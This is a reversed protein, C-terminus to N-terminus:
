KEGLPFFGKNKVDVGKVKEQPFFFIELILATAGFDLIHNPNLFIYKKSLINKSFYIKEYIHFVYIYM